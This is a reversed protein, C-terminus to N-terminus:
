AKADHTHIDASVSAPETSQAFAKDESSTNAARYSSHHYYREPNDHSWYRPYILHESINMKRGKRKRFNEEFFFFFASPELAGLYIASQETIIIYVIVHEPPM